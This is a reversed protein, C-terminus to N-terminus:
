PTQISPHNQLASSTGPVVYASGYAAPAQYRPALVLGVIALGLIGCVGLIGQVVWKRTERLGPMEQEIKTLRDSAAKIADFAAAIRENQDTQRQEVSILKAIAEGMQKVDARVEAVDGKVQTLIQSLVAVSQEQSKSAAM